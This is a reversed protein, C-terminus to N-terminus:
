DHLPREPPGPIGNLAIMHLDNQIMHLQDSIERLLHLNALERHTDSSLTFNREKMRLAIDLAERVQTNGDTM